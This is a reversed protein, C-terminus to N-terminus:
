RDKSVVFPVYSLGLIMLANVKDGFSAKLGQTRARRKFVYGLINPCYNFFERFNSRDLGGTDAFISKSVGDTGILLHLVTLIM